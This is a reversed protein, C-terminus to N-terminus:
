AGTCFLPLTNYPQISTGGPVGLTLSDFEFSRSFSLNICFQEDFYSLDTCIYPTCIEMVELQKTKCVFSDDYQRVFFISEIAPSKPDAMGVQLIKCLKSLM